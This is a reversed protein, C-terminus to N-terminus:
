KYELPKIAKIGDIGAFHNDNSIITTVFKEKMLALFVADFYNMKHRSFFHLAQIAHEKVIPEIDMPLSLVLELVNLAAQRSVHRDIVEGVESINLSSTIAQVSGAEIDALIQRCKKGYTPHAQAAYIFINSDIFIRM